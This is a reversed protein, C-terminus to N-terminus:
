AAVSASVDDSLPGRGATPSVWRTKYWATTHKKAPDHSVPYLARTALGVYTMAAVSAPEDDGYAVYVEAGITGSPKANSLPTAEDRIRLVHSLNGITEINVVPKTIPDAIPTPTFDRVTIALEARDTDDTDPSEQIIAVLERAKAMAAAKATNKAQITVSTKTAPVAVVALASAYADHLADYATADGAVLGYDTPAATLKTNFNTSWDLFDQDGAPLWDACPGIRCILLLLGALVPLAALAALATIVINM